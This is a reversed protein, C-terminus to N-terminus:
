TRIVTVNLQSFLRNVPGKIIEWDVKNCALLIRKGTLATCLPKLRESVEDESLLTNDRFSRNTLVFGINRKVPSHNSCNIVTEGVVKPTNLMGTPINSLLLKFIRDYRFSELSSFHLSVDFDKSDIIDRQNNYVHIM